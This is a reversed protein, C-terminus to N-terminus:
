QFLLLLLCVLLTTVSITAFLFCPTTRTLIPLHGVITFSDPSVLLFFCHFYNQIATVWKRARGSDRLWWRSVGCATSSPWYQLVANKFWKNSNPVATWEMWTWAVKNNEKYFSMHSCNKNPHINPSSSTEASIGTNAELWLHRAHMLYDSREWM